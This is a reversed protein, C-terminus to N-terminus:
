ESATRDAKKVVAMTFPMMAAFLSSSAVVLLSTLPGPPLGRGCVFLAWFSASPLFASSVKPGAALRAKKRKETRM